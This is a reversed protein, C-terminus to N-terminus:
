LYKQRMNIAINNVQLTSTASKFRTKEEKTMKEWIRLQSLITKRIEIYEELTYNKM